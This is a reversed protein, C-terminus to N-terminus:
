SSPCESLATAREGEMQSGNLMRWVTMPSVYIGQGKLERSIAKVGLGKEALAQVADLSVEVRPRAM